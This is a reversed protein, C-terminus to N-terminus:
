QPRRARASLYDYIADIEADTFHAYRRQAVGSMLRLQQRGGTAVGTRLLRRFEERGYAGVVILDPPAREGPPAFGGGTLAIGHCEACTARVMYRAREHQAGLGIPGQGRQRRVMDPASRFQGQAIEQRAGPGFVIRPHVAGGPPVTRLYATVAAVEAPDLHSFIESPMEWLPTGDARVGGRIARDLQADSYLPVARTLNSTFSIAFTRDEGWPGGRLDQGHCGRCGLVRALREGHQVISQGAVHDFRPGAPEPAPPPAPQARGCAALLLASLLVTAPKM